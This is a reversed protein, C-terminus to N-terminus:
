LVTAMTIAFRNAITQREDVFGATILSEVASGSAHTSASTSEQARTITITNSSRATARVIEMGPDSFPDPYTVKDWITLMFDGTSSFNVGTVVTLTLDGSLCQASLTSQANNKALVDAM